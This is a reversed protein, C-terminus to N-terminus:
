NGVSQNYYYTLNRRFNELELYDKKDIKHFINEIDNLLAIIEINTFLTTVEFKKIIEMEM